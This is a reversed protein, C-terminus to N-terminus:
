EEDEEDEDIDNEDDSDNSLDDDNKKDENETDDSADDIDLDDFDEDDSESTEDTDIDDFDTDESMAKEDTDTQDNTSPVTNSTSCFGRINSLTDIIHKCDNAIQDLISKNENSEIIISELYDIFEDLCEGLENIQSMEDSTFACNVKSKKLIKNVIKLLDELNCMHTTDIEFSQDLTTKFTDTSKGVTQHYTSRKPKYMKILKGKTLKGHSHLRVIESLDDYVPSIKNNLRRKANNASLFLGEQVFGEQKIGSEPKSLKIEVIGAVTKCQSTFSTISKKIKAISGPDKTKKLSVILNKLSTNLATLSEIEDDSYIKSMKTAKTLVRNLHHGQIKFRNIIKNIDAKNDNLIGLCKRISVDIEKNINKSTIIFAEQVADPSGSSIFDKIQQITMTKLKESGQDILEDITMNNIDINSDDSIDDTLDDDMDDGEESSSDTDVSNDLEDLQEDISSGSSTNANDIDNLDNDDFTVDSTADNSNEDVPKNDNQTQNAINEAIRASVDNVAATEKTDDTNTNIDNSSDDVSVEPNTNDDSNNTNTDSSNDSVGDTNSDDSGNNSDGFDIAEQVFRVLPRRKRNIRKTEIISEQIYRDKNEYHTETAFSKMNEKEYSNIDFTEQVVQVKDRIPKTWGFYENKGSIENYYELVVCFSNNNGKPVILNKPTAYEWVSSSEPIDYNNEMYTRLSKGINKLAGDKVLDISDLQKKSITHDKDTAFYTNVKGVFSTDGNEMYPGFNVNLKSPVKDDSINIRGFGFMGLETMENCYEMYAEDAIERIRQDYSESSERPMIAIDKAAEYYFEDYTKANKYSETISTADAPVDSVRGDKLNFEINEIEIDDELPIDIGLARERESDSGEETLDDLEQYLQAYELIVDNPISEPTLKTNAKTPTKLSQQNRIQRKIYDLM